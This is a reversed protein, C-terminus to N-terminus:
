RLMLLEAEALVSRIETPPYSQLLKMNHAFDGSMLQEKVLSRLFVPYTSGSLKTYRSVSSRCASRPSSLM